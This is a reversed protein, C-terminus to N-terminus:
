RLPALSDSHAEQLHHSKWCTVPLGPYFLICTPEQSDCESLRGGRQQERTRLPPPNLRQSEPLCLSLACHLRSHGRSAAPAEGRLGRVAGAERPPHVDAGEEFLLGPPETESWSVTLHRASGSRQQLGPSAATTLLGDAGHAGGAQGVLLCRVGALPAVLTVDRPPSCPLPLHRLSPSPQCCYKPAQTRGELVGKGLFRCAKCSAPLEKTHRLCVEALISLILLPDFYLEAAKLRVEPSTELDGAPSFGAKSADSLDFAPM